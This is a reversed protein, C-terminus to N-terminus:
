STPREAWMGTEAAVALMAALEAESLHVESHNGRSQFVKRALSRAINLALGGVKIGDHTLPMDNAM